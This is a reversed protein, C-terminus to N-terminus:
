PLRAGILGHAPSPQADPARERAPLHIYPNFVFWWSVPRPKHEAREDEQGLRGSPRRRRQEM